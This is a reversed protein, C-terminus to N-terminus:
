IPEEIIGVAKQLARSLPYPEEKPLLEKARERDGKTVLSQIERALATLDHIECIWEHVYKQVAEGSLGMQISRYELRSLDIDREPDWQIRVPLSRLLTQWHEEDRYTRKEYHSLCSNALVWEFGSRRIGVGLVREQNRRTAWNSRYMMWLFSPKIWTMRDFKFHPSTFRGASLAADAIVPSFAQYVRILDDCYDARIQKIPIQIASTPYISHKLAM